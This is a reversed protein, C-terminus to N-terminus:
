EYDANLKKEYNQRERLLENKIEKNKENELKLIEQDHKQKLKLLQKEEEEQESMRKARLMEGKEQTIRLFKEHEKQLKNENIQKERLEREYRYLEEKKKKNNLQELEYNNLTNQIKILDNNKQQIEKRKLEKNLEIQKTLEEQYKLKKQYEIEELRKQKEEAEVIMIANLVPWQNAEINTTNNNNNNNNSSSLNTLSPVKSQKSSEARASNSKMITTKMISVTEKIQKELLSIDSEAKRIDDYSEVFEKIKNRITTNIQSSPNRSGYKRLFQQQLLSELRGRIANKEEKQLLTLAVRQTRNQLQRPSKTVPSRLSTPM